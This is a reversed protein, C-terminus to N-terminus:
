YPELHEPLELIAEEFCLNSAEIFEIVSELPACTTEYGLERIIQFHLKMKYEILRAINRNEIIKYYKLELTPRTESYQIQRRDLNNTIGFKCGYSDLIVYICTPCDYGNEGRIIFRYM